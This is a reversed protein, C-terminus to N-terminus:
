CIGLALRKVIRSTSPSGCKIDDLLSGSKIQLDTGKNKTKYINKDAVLKMDIGFIRWDETVLRETVKNDIGCDM